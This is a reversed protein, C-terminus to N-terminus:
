STVLVRAAEDLVDRRTRELREQRSRDNPHDQGEERVQILSEILQVLAEFQEQNM